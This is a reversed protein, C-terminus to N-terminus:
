RRMYADGPRLTKFRENMMDKRLAHKHSMDSTINEKQWVNGLVRDYEEYEILTITDKKDM